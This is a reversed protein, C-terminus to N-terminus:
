VPGVCFFRKCAHKKECPEFWTLSYTYCNDLRQTTNRRRIRFGILINFVVVLIASTANSIVISEAVILSQTLVSYGKRPLFCHGTENGFAINLMCAGVFNYTFCGFAFATLKKATVVEKYRFPYYIAYFREIAMAVIMFSAAGGSTSKVNLYIDCMIPINHSTFNTYTKTSDDVIDAAVNFM